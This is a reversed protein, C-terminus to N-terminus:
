GLNAVNEQEQEWLYAANEADEKNKFIGVASIDTRETDLFDVFWFDEKQYLKTTNM